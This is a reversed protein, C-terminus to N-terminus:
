IWKWWKWDKLEDTRQLICWYKMCKRWDIVMVNFAIAKSISDWFWEQLYKLHSWPSYRVWLAEYVLTSIGVSKASWKCRRKMKINSSPDVLVWVSVVALNAYTLMRLMVLRQMSEVSRHSMWSILIGVTAGYFKTTGKINWMGLIVAMFHSLVNYNM